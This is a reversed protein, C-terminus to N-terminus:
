AELDSDGCNFVLTEVVTNGEVIQVKNGDTTDHKFSLAKNALGNIANTNGTIATQLNTEVGTARTVEAALNDTLTKEAAEARTKENAIATTNEGIKTTNQGIKTDLGAVMDALTTDAAVTGIKANIANIDNTHGTIANANATVKGDLATIDEKAKKVDNVLGETSGGNTNVYEILTTINTITDADSVGGILTNVEDAAITRISKNADAGNGTLVNLANQNAAAVNSVNTISTNLEQKAADVANTIATGRATAEDAIAQELAEEVGTARTTEAKILNRISGEVTDAGDLKTLTQTHSGLTGNIDGISGTLGEILGDQTEQSAELASVRDTISSGEGTNGIGVLGELTIIDAKLGEIDKFLGTAESSGAVAAAGVKEELVEIKDEATDVRGVLDTVEQQTAFKIKDTGIGDKLLAAFENESKKAWSHVDAALASLWPLNEFSKVGDGVKILCSAIEDVSYGSGTSPNVICVEGKLPILTKHALWNEYSDYKLQIRTRLEAM